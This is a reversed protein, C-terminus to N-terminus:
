EVIRIIQTKDKIYNTNEIDSIAEKLGKESAIHTLIIVPVSQNSSNEKQMVSAISIGKAGLYSAISALVGPKDLVTFRLYYRSSITDIPQVTVTKQTSYYNMPIRVQTGSVINRAVDIIDSIIASATPLEGAGRGYLLIQGVADGEVLAANFVNSVSALIHNTHLMAPHVRVDLQDSDANKNIIGLLKITYGLERAVTIDQPTISTIGEIQISEYPVYGNSILSALITVKHGSDGGGVDLTPDAEAYGNAQAQKLVQDFPLGENSMRTLIYNCTGNIITKVSFINNGVLGERVAKIVPIGGGVSAEFYISVGNKEACEFIEPGHESILAKNATVVHKKKSLADLIVKRAFTTGGILEVVIDISPDNLIDQADGTCIADGTSLQSLRDTAKDAIRTLKLPLGLDKRISDIRSNLVKIVGGGVTGAGILGILIDRM